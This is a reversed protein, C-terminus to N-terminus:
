LIALVEWFQLLESKLM